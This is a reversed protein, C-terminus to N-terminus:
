QNNRTAYHCEMANGVTAFAVVMKPEKSEQACNDIM